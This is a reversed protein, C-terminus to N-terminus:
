FYDNSSLDMPEVGSKTDSGNDDEFESESKDSEEGGVSIILERRLVVVM